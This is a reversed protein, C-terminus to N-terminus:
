ITNIRIKNVQEDELSTGFNRVGRITLKELSSM